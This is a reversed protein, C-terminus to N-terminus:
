NEVDQVSGDKNVRIDAIIEHKGDTVDTLTFIRYDDESVTQVLKYSKETGDSTGKFTYTIYEGEGAGIHDEERIDAIGKAASIHGILASYEKDSLSGTVSCGSVIMCILLIASIKKILKIM